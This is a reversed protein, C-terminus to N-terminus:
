GTQTKVRMALSVRAVVIGTGDRVDMEMSFDDGLFPHFRAREVLTGAAEKQADQICCLETGIDDWFDNGKEAIDFFYRPLLTVGM